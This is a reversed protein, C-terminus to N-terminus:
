QKQKTKNPFMNTTSNTMHVMLWVLIQQKIPFGAKQTMKYPEFVLEIGNLMSHITCYIFQYRVSIHQMFKYDTDHKCPQVIKKVHVISCSKNM